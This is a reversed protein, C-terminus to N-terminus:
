VGPQVPGAGGEDAPGSAEGDPDGAGDSEGAGDDAKGDFQGFRARYRSRVRRIDAPTVPRSPLPQTAQDHRGADRNHAPCEVNGNFQSTEGHQSRPVIHNVDCRAAPVRCGSPHVCRRDRAQVARRVVGTFTRQSSVGVVTMPGDFLISEVAAHGLWPVLVGPAIVKGHALECLNALTSEGVHVTLLLRPDLAGETKAASRVAMRVLAAARRQRLTRHVGNRRDELWLERELRTLEEALIAGPLPDLVGDLVVAGQFTTSLSVVSHDTGDEAIRGERDAQHMSWYDLM